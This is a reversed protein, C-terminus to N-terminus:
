ACKGVRVYWYVLLSFSLSRCIYLCCCGCSLRCVCLCRVDFLLFLCCVCTRCGVILLSCVACVSVVLYM